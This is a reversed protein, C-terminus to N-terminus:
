LMELLRGLDVELLFPSRYGLQSTTLIQQMCFILIKNASQCPNRYRLQHYKMGIASGAGSTVTVTVPQNLVASGAALRLAFPIDPPSTVGESGIYTNQTFEFLADALSAHLYVEYCEHMLLRILINTIKSDNDAIIVLATSSLINVRFNNSSLIM